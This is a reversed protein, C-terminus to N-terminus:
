RHHLGSTPNTFFLFPSCSNSIGVHDRDSLGKLRHAGPLPPLKQSKKIKKNARKWELCTNLSLYEISPGHEPLYSMTSATDSNSYPPPNAEHQTSPRSIEVHSNSDNRLKTPFLSFGFGRKSPKPALQPQEEQIMTTFSVSDAQVSHATPVSYVSSSHQSGARSPARSATQSPAQNATQSATQSAAQSAAQSPVRGLSTRKENNITRPDVIANELDWDAKTRFTTTIEQSFIRANETKRPPADTAPSNPNPTGNSFM